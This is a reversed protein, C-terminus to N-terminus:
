RKKKKERIRIAIRVPSGEFGFTERLKRELFRRYGHELFGTTFLVIVPPRSSAQTAFLVRPLRGGRMPPPTEAIVARLWTNLQGTPIRQDWSDLAEMMAPELKQLARGTKASINVRRAWPVHSLQLDIERELLERRDEDVLDWKNFAVVLAKGADLIMRLVRQDQEAIPESADALFVVVESADIAARTRLSAYYEHGVANKVKKRIGATDVFRWTREELEVISDVPDVTTGAVNDVVSRQEGSIKNLLSSKGVNPRGVLAVRRPGSVVSLERPTEPFVELLKDLVDAAGRGHLASVPYPNDLGLAWFEAMDAYQTDSEFKNAVVIVPVDSRQLKRAIVEDTETIGVKTDVVFVIADATAMATEAQRAIAAHIGKADPDWGGTDQVWFRRGGWDGLYSIRDRTVGPFDEVVAERRGIFRNVLTSKGVNPRGVIAVTCLAEKQAELEDAIGFAEEISEWDTDEEDSELLDFNEAQLYHEGLQEPDVEWTEGDWNEPDWNELDEESVEQVSADGDAPVVHGEVTRFVLGGTSEAGDAPIASDLDSEEILGAIAEIVEDISMEGTDLMTADEAPRLPSTERTSDAEDRRQVDALVAEFTVERGAATDQDFRRQARVEASATMYVKVPADPLVVTGIDRGEVVCRGAAAALDRQLQVLNTRVEPIAAVASVHATVEPGRIDASVDEGDLLVETSQPDENVQLPLQSTAEIIAETAAPDAPDIGAKLVHLTAVRYMAGTDLYRAGAYQAIRRSVTSKGTGSPGDIALLFGGEELNDILALQSFDANMDTTM